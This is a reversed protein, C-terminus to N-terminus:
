FSFSYRVTFLEAPLLSTPVLVLPNCEVLEITAQGMSPDRRWDIMLLKYCHSLRLFNLKPLSGQQARWFVLDADEIVLRELKLFCGSEIEWVPGRFAYQNLTLNTLNPLQSGIDNMYKWPCGLGDLRLLTLSSSFMQLPVMFEYKMEPNRVVYVLSKLNQLEVSINGLTSLTNCYDVDDDDDYPKLEMRILIEELNPIRKLIESTCSKASVGWVGTLKDLTADSNPTPLDRGYIDIHQLEQMDWIEVPMYSHSGRKKINMHQGIILSQLHFLNSISGPLENNCTLALYKLCVLKLIELPVHYFRVNLADLVSLLKFDMAHIPVPYQHYPGLCFLSRITSACDSKISNYVEQFAFLTNCHAGLRRQDKVVDDCSQLIHLFKTKSAEKRCLHQWCSHVRFNNSSFRFRLNAGFLILHYSDSLKGLCEITYDKFTNEKTPEVFGEASMLNYLKIIEINSYPPFAGLYLFLMKLCQPLYEYSPFLVESIQDYADEFVSNHQKEAVETWFEPTKDEKALLEAITVIMLPLGECKKAIKEGLKDLETPFGKEGFVKEGLLKKGEEDNLLSVVQFPSGEDGLLSRLLVANNEGIFSPSKENFRLRSTLLIRVNEKPLRDMLRRDWEWIDDMVILCKKDKLREELVGVLKEIDDDDEGQRTNPDLQALICRLTENSECKRGVKVWARLEFHTQITPDDFVKKALTTKGVGAMGIVSIWNIVAVWRWEDEEALLYDRVREFEESLGVMESNIGAFDIRSSIPEGEEEPMNELEVGYEVEMPTLRELLYDACRQLSQLDLSFPLHDRESISSREIQPLIQDYFHSELLDEFEWVAEKIREDLANVKTRIKCCSTEDLELLVKQLRCMADYVQQLIHASLQQPRIKNKLSIAKGFASMMGKFYPTKFVDPYSSYSIQPSPSVLSIRPSQLISQITNKLSIAAGYAAM